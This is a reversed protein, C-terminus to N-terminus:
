ALSVQVQEYTELGIVQKVYRCIDTPIDDVIESVVYLLQDKKLHRVCSWLGAMTDCHIIKYRNALENQKNELFTIGPPVLLVVDGELFDHWSIERQHAVTETVIIARSPRKSRKETELESRRASFYSTWAIYCAAGLGAVVLTAAGGIRIWNYPGKARRQVM